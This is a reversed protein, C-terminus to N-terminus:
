CSKFQFQHNQKSSRRLEWNLNPDATSIPPGSLNFSRAALSIKLPQVEGLLWLGGASTSFFKLVKQTLLVVRHCCFHSFGSPMAKDNSYKSALKTKGYTLV